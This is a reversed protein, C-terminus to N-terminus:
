DQLWGLRRAESLLNNTGNTQYVFGSGKKMNEPLPYLVPVGNKTWCCVPEREVLLPQGDATKRRSGGVDPYNSRYLVGDSELWYAYTGGVIHGRKNRRSTKYFGGDKLPTTIYEEATEDARLIMRGYYTCFQVLKKTASQMGIIREAQQTKYTVTVREENTLTDRTLVARLGQIKGDGDKSLVRFPFGRLADNRIIELRCEQM